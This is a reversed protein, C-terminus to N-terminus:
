EEEDGYVYRLVLPDEDLSDRMKELCKLADRSHGEWHELESIIKTIADWLQVPCRRHKSAAEELTDINWVVRETARELEALAYAVGHYGSVSEIDTLDTAKLADVLREFRNM